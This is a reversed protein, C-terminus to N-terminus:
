GAEDESDPAPRPPRPFAPTRNAATEFAKAIARGALESQFSRGPDQFEALEKEHREFWAALSPFRSVRALAQGQRCLHAGARALGAPPVSLLDPVAAGRLRRDEASDFADDLCQLTSALTLFARHFGKRQPNTGLMGVLGHTALGAWWLQAQAAQAYREPTAARVGHMRRERALGAGRLKEARAIWRDALSGSGLAQALSRAWADRLRSRTNILDADMPAQGDDLRDAVLGHLVAIEHSDVFREVRETALSARPLDAALMAPLARSPELLV